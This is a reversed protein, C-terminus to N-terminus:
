NTSKGIIGNVKGKYKSGDEYTREQVNEAKKNTGTVKAQNKIKGM